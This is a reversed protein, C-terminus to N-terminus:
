SAKPKVRLRLTARAGGEPRNELAAEGGHLHAVERVVSLGLGSSKRGTDPRALSFFKEFVRALAYDPVGPGTDTVTIVARDGETAAALAITGGEPTFDVANQLLNSVAELVLDREGTLPVPADLARALRIRKSEIAPRLREAAEAAAAALDFAAPDRLGKRAELASLQLLRDVIRQIRGAETRINEHFQARREPPMEEALLEAAGRIASLPGKVEHTLVQVYREIEDKRELAERMEELARGMTGIENRGLRPLPPRGGDRIAQAYRTLQRVPRTFWITLAAGLLLVAGAAVAGAVAIKRRAAWIFLHVTDTPKAVTLVGVLKGGARVPSAIHLVSTSPDDPDVRTARAGYFGNLTRSVDRWRSYDKGEDKGGNSDFLVIGKDDTVYVRLDVHTKVLDYIKAEVHRHSAQDLGARFEEVPLTGNEVHTSLISALVTATDVLTEEVAELYRPRLDDLIWDVLYYFGAGIVVVFGVLIRARLSV